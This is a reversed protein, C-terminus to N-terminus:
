TMKSTPLPIKSLNHNHPAANSQNCYKWWINDEYHFSLVDFISTLRIIFWDTFSHISLHTSSHIISNAFLYTFSNTFSHNFSHIFSHILSHTFSDIFHQIKLYHIVYHLLSHIFLVITSIISSTISKLNLSCTISLYLPCDYILSDNSLCKFQYKYWIVRFNRLKDTYGEM